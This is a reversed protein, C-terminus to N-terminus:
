RRGEEGPSRRLHPPPAVSEARIRPFRPPKRLSVSDLTPGLGGGHAPWRCAHRAGCQQGRLLHLSLSTWGVVPWTLGRRPWL